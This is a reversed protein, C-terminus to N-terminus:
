GLVLTRTMRHQRGKTAARDPLLFFKCVNVCVLGALLLKLTGRPMNRIDYSM